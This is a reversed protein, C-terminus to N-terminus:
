NKNETALLEELVQEIEPLSEFLQEFSDIVWYKDQFRDKWYSTMMIQRVDYPFHSPEDSLSYTTEGASSLIGAGYV